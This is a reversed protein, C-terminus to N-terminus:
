WQKFEGDRLLAILQTRNVSTLDWHAAAKRYVARLHSEVTRSSNVLRRAIEADTLGERVLLATVRREAPTLAGLIFARLDEGRAALQASRAREVAEFPDNVGELASFVPAVRNWLIIPAELLQVEDGAEPHLRKSELFEGQSFLHWLRDHEDFLLQAAAMGFLALIKRGGAILLHVQLGRQKVERVQQYLARFAAQAAQPTDVDPLPRGQEDYLAELHLPLHGRYPTDEFAAKLREVARAIPTGPAAVSHVVIVQELREGQRLLLDVGATVVQAESGLTAVLAAKGDQMQNNRKLFSSKPDNM